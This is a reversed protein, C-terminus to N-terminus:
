GIHRDLADRLIVEPDQGDHVMASILALLADGPPPNDSGAVFPQKKLVRAARTLAPM